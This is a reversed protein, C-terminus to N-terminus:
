KTTEFLSVNPKHLVKLEINTYGKNAWLRVKDRHEDVLKEFSKKDKGSLKIEHEFELNEIFFEKDAQMALWIYLNGMVDDLDESSVRKKFFSRIDKLNKQLDNDSIQAYRFFEDKAPLYRPYQKCSEMLLELDEDYLYTCNPHLIWDNEVSYSESDGIYQTFEVITAINLAAIEKGIYRNLLYIFDSITIFGYLNVAATAHIHIMEYATRVLVMDDKEFRTLASKIDSPVTLYYNNDQKYMGIFGKFILDKYVLFSIEEEKCPDEHLMFFLFKFLYYDLELVEYDFESSEGLISEEIKQILDQKKCRSIGSIGRCESIDKLHEVSNGALMERLTSPAKSKSSLQKKWEEPVPVKMASDLFGKYDINEM